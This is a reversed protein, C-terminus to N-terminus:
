PANKRTYCIIKNAPYQAFIGNEVVGPINNLMQELALPKSLDLNYVDLIINHNDTSVGHRYEPKGGLKTIERAVFSRAMPIVEVPIPCDCALSNPKSPDVICIFQKSAAAIIKEQTLAGGAGKILQKLNNYADAGDVYIDVTMVDNLQYLPINYQRLLAASGQSSAIAGNIKSKVRALAEIFYKVTSGTGVGVMANDPIYAIAAAASLQKSREIHM